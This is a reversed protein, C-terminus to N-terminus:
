SSKPKKRKTSKKRKKQERPAAEGDAPLFQSVVYAGLVIGGVWYAPTAIAFNPASTKSMGVAMFAGSLFLLSTCDFLGGALLPALASLIVFIGAGAIGLINDKSLKKVEELGDRWRRARSTAPGTPGHSSKSKKKSKRKRSKKGAAASRKHKWISKGGTVQLVQETVGFDDLFEGPVHLAWGLDNVMGRMRRSGKVAPLQELGLLFFSAPAVRVKDRGTGFGYVSFLPVHALVLTLSGLLLLRLLLGFLNM